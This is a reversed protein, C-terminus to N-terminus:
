YTQNPLKLSDNLENDKRHITEKVSAKRGFVAKIFYRSFSIVSMRRVNCDDCARDLEEQPILLGVIQQESFRNCLESFNEPVVGRRKVIQSIHFQEEQKKEDTEYISSSEYVESLKHFGGKSMSFLKNKYAVNEEILFREYLWYIKIFDDTLENQPRGKNTKVKKVKHNQRIIECKKQFVEESINVEEFAFNTTSLDSLGNNRSYDPILVGVGNEYFHTYNGVIEDVSDGLMNVDTLIITDGKRLTCLLYKLQVRETHTATLIDVAIDAVFMNRLQKYVKTREPKPHIASMKNNKTCGYGIARSM